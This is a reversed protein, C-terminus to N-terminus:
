NKDILIHCKKTIYGGCFYNSQVSLFLKQQMMTVSIVLMIQAAKGAFLNLKVDSIGAQYSVLIRIATM